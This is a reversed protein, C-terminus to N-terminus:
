EREFVLQMRPLDASASIAPDFNACALLQAFSHQRALEAIAAPSFLQWAYSDQPVDPGYDLTVTLRDGEMRKAESIARGDREFRRTGQNREFFSRHYIDLVLRGGPRLKQSIQRLIDANTAADFYGLSQWLCIVADFKGPLGDLRRMDHELYTITADSVCRAEALAAANTDVGTVRYGRRALAHAHRGPGCCLDLVASYAPQPLWHAVFAAERETQEATIPQLFLEYWTPSYDNMVTGSQNMSQM